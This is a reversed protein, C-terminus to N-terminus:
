VAKSCRRNLRADFFSGVGVAWDDMLWNAVAGQSRVLIVHSLQRVLGFKGRGVVGYGSGGFVQSWCRGVGCVM